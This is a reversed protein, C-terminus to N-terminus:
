FDARYTDCLYTKEKRPRKEYVYTEKTRRKEHM